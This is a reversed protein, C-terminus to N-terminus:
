EHWPVSQQRLLIREEGLLLYLVRGHHEPGASLHRYARANSALFHRLRRLRRARRPSSAPGSM